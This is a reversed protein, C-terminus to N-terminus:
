WFTCADFITDAETPYVGVIGPIFVRTSVKLPM